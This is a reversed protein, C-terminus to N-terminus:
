AQVRRMSAWRERSPGGAALWDREPWGNGGVVVGRPLGAVIGAAGAIALAARFPTRGTGVAGAVALTPASTWGNVDTRVIAFTLLVLSFSAGTFIKNRFLTVPVM